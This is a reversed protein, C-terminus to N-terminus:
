KYEGKARELFAQFADDLAIAKAFAQDDKVRLRRDALMSIKRHPNYKEICGRPGTPLRETESIVGAALLEARSGEIWAPGYKNYCISIGSSM